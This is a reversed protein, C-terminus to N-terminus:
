AQFRRKACDGDVRLATKKSIVCESVPPGARSGAWTAPCLSCMFQFLTRHPFFYKTNPEGSCVFALYFDRTGAHRAWRFLWPLGKMKVRHTGMWRLKLMPRDTQPGEARVRKQQLTFCGHVARSLLKKNYKKPPSTNASKQTNKAM